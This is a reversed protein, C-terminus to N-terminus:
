PTTEGPAASAASRQRILQADAVDADGDGDVDAAGREAPVLARTGVVAELVRDADAGDVVGDGTVDGRMGAGAGGVALWLLVALAAGLARSM